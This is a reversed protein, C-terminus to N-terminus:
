NFTDKDNQPMPAEWDMSTMVSFDPANGGKFFGSICVDPKEQRFYEWNKELTETSDDGITIAIKVNKCVFCERLEKQNKLLHSDNSNGSFLNMLRKLPSDNTYDNKGFLAILADM